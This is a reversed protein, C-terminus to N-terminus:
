RYIEPVPTEGADPDYTLAPSPSAPVLMPQPRFSYHRELAWVGFLIAAFALLVTGAIPPKTARVGRARPQAKENPRSKRTFAVFTEHHSARL